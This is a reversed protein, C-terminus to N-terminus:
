LGGKGKSFNTVVDPRAAKLLTFVYFLLWGL